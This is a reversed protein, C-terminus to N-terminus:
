MMIGLPKTIYGRESRLLVKTHRNADDLELLAKRFAYSPIDVCAGKWMAVLQIVVTDGSQALADLTKQFDNNVVTHINGAVTELVYVLPAPLNEPATDVMQLEKAAMEMMQMDTM